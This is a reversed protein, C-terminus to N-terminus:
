DERKRLWNKREPKIIQTYGDEFSKSPSFSDYGNEYRVFYGGVFPKHKEMYSEPVIVYVKANASILSNGVIRDIQFGEVEKHCKWRPLEM